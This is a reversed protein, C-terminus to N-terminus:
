ATTKAGKLPPLKELESVASKLLNNGRTTLRVRKLRRDMVDEYAEVLGLGKEGKGKVASLLAVNRSNSSSAINLSKQLDVMLIDPSAAIAFFAEVTQAPMEPYHLRVTQMVRVMVAAAFKPDIM